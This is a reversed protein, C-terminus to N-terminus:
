GSTTSAWCTCCRRTCTTSRSRTRSPTTATTTPRATSPAARSAAAPWGSAHLRVPQPRPRRHGPGDAHPRVRRGLRGADLRAPRAGEPGQAARRDPQDVARANNEHGDKLNGHQDWRDGGVSRASCSSSACAASSWDGPSCASAASSGRRSTRDDLGYLARTAARSAARPGDARARRDAHPLGARLQRDGVRAPRAHRDPRARRQDLERLLDLKGDSCRGPRSARARHQRGPRRRRPLALGPVRGAPLRQQLLRARRAPDPRRQARRLRAPGPVRQGPRLDVWAGMSPRGQMGSAPTCSTTPTRTSPSTRRGDLPRDGPRRRLAAVHPFLDSVPIGSQATSASSGPRSAARQRRQQVADAAVKMKIPQGHERDLRPKPDFTDVQSPGGDMYLFIVSKARATFHPPPALPDRKGSGGRPIAGLAPDGLLAALALAGFGNACQQLLERRSLPARLFRDCHM